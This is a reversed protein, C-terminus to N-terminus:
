LTESVNSLAVKIDENSYDKSFSYRLGMIIDQNNKRIVCNRSIEFVDNTVDIGYGYSKFQFRKRPEM